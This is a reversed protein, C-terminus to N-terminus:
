VSPSAAASLERCRETSLSPACEDLSWPEGMAVVIEREGRLPDRAHACLINDVLLLDGPEWRRRVTAREYADNLLAVDESTLPTGDGLSTRFPLGGQGFEDLLVERIAADLSWESWFATHNFWVEQGTLPHRLTASRVQVTHLGDQEDWAYGIAHAACYREVGERTDLAFATRWGLSIHEYYGRELRWGTRRFRDVLATPLNSLVSRVDAVPTAGGEAPAALCGFLLLGPFSLTYSNENHPRIPQAPPLDTSSYVGEGFDSRPTAKERYAARSGFLADRAAAFDQTSRVPLGRLFVAGHGLLAERLPARHEALWAAALQGRPDALATAPAGPEIIWDITM